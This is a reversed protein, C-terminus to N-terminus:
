CATGGEVQINQTAGGYTVAISGSQEVSDSEEHAAGVTLDEVIQVTHNADVFSRTSHQEDGTANILSVDILHGDIRIFGKAGTDVGDEAFITDAGGKRSLTTTCGQIAIDRDALAGIAFGRAVATSRPNTATAHCASILVAASFVLGLRNMKAGELLGERVSCSDRADALTM